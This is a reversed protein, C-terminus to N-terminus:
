EVPCQATAPEFGDRFMVDTASLVTIVLPASALSATNNSDGSYSAGLLYTTTTASPSALTSTTCSATGGSLPVSACLTQFNGDNFTVTGTPSLGSVVASFTFPQSEVFTLMCPSGLGLSSTVKNISLIQSASGALYNANGAQSATITCNNTGVQIGTVVGSASNVSCDASLTSYQIPNGSNPNASTALVTGPSGVTVTPAPNFTLFQSAQGVVQALTSSVSGGYNSDSNYQAVISHTGVSLATTSYTAIGSGNLATTALTSFGDLFTVTGTPVPGSGAVTATFTVNQGPTSPNLSSLLTVSPLPLGNLSTLVVDNGSGGVYSLVFQYVSNLTIVSGEPLGNFTGNVPDAGDNNILVFQQGQAPIFSPS